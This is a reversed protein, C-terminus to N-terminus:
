QLFEKLGIPTIDNPMLGYLLRIDRISSLPIGM